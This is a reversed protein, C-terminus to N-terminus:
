PTKECGGKKTKKVIYIRFKLKQSFHTYSIKEM